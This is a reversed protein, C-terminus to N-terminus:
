LSHYHDVFDHWFVSIDNALLTLVSYRSVSKRVAGVLSGPVVWDIMGWFLM